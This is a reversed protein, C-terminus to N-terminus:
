RRRFAPLSEPSREVTPRFNAAGGTLRDPLGDPRDAIGAPLGDRREVTHRRGSGIIGAPLGHRVDVAGGGDVAGGSEPLMSRPLGDPKLDFAAVTRGHPLLFVGRGM